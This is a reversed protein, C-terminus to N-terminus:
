FTSHPDTTAYRQPQQRFRAARRSRAATRSSSSRRVAVLLSCGRNPRQSESQPGMSQHEYPILSTTIPRILNVPRYKHGPLVLRFFFAGWGTLRGPLLRSKMKMIPSQLQETARCDGASQALATRISCARRECYSESSIGLSRWPKGHIFQSARRRGPVV